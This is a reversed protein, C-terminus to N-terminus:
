PTSLPCTLMQTVPCPSHAPPLRQHCVKRRPHASRVPISSMSSAGTKECGDPHTYKQCQIPRDSEKGRLALHEQDPKCSM